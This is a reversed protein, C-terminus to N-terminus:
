VALTRFEDDFLEDNLFVYPYGFKKNFRDELQKMSSVVGNLDGNRAALHRHAMVYCPLAAGGESLIYIVANAKRPAQSDVMCFDDRALGSDPKKCQDERLSLLERARRGHTIDSFLLSAFQVWWVTLLDILLLLLVSLSLRSCYEFVVWIAAVRQQVRRRGTPSLSSASSAEHFLRPLGAPASSRFGRPGAM